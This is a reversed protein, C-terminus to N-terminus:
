NLPQSLMGDVTMSEQVLSHNHNSKTRMKKMKERWEIIEDGSMLLYDCKHEDHVTLWYSAIQQVWKEVWRPWVNQSNSQTTVLGSKKADFWIFLCFFRGWSVLVVYDKTREQQSFFDWDHTHKTMTVQTGVMHDDVVRGAILYAAFWVCAIHKHSLVNSPWYSLHM